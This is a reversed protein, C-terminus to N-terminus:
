KQFFNINNFSKAFVIVSPPLLADHKWQHRPILFINRRSMTACGCATKRYISYEVGKITVKGTNDCCVCPARTEKKKEAVTYYEQGWLIPFAAKIRISLGPVEGPRGGQALWWAPNNREADHPCRKGDCNERKCSDCFMRHFEEDWPATPVNLSDM